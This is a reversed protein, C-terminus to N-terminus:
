FSKVVFVLSLAWSAEPFSGGWDDEYVSTTRFARLLIRAPSAKNDTARDPLEWEIQGSFTDSRTRSGAARDWERSPSYSSSVSWRPLLHWTLGVSAAVATRSRLDAGAGDRAHNARTFFTLTDLPAVSLRFDHAQYAYELAAEGPETDEQFSRAYGYSLSWRSGTWNATLSHAFRDSSVRRMRLDNSGIREALSKRESSVSYKFRPLWWASDAGFLAPVPVDVNLAWRTGDASRRNVRDEFSWAADLSLMVGALNATLGLGPTRKGASRLRQDVDAFSTRMLEDTGEYSGRLALALSREGFLKRNRLLELSGHARYRHKTGFSLAPLELEPMPGQLDELYERAYRLEAQFRGELAKTEYRFEDRTPGFLRSPRVALPLAFAPSDLGAGEASAGSACLLGALATAMGRIRKLKKRPM